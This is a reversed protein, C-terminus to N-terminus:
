PLQEDSREVTCRAAAPRQPPRQAVHVTSATYKSRIVVIKCTVVDSFRKLVSRQCYVQSPEIDLKLNIVHFSSQYNSM